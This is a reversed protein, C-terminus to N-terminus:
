EDNKEEQLLLDIASVVSLYGAQEYGHSLRVMKIAEERIKTIVEKQGFKRGEEYAKDREGRLFEWTPLTGHEKTEIIDEESTAKRMLKRVDNAPMKM